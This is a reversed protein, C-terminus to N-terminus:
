QSKKELVTHTNRGRKAKTISRGEATRLKKKAEQWADYSDYDYKFNTEKMFDDRVVGDKNLRVKM